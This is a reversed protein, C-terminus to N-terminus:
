GEAMAILQAQTSPYPEIQLCLAGSFFCALLAPAVVFRPARAIAAVTVVVSLCIAGILFATPQWRLHSLLIGLAFASAAFFLPAVRFRM